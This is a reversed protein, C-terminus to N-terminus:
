WLKNEKIVQYLIPSLLGVFKEERDETKFEIRLQWLIAHLVEHLLTEKMTQVGYNESLYIVEEDPVYLGMLKEKRQRAKTLPKIKYAMGLINVSDVGFVDKISNKVM